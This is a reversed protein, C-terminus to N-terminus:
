AENEGARKLMPLSALAKQNQRTKAIREILAMLKERRKAKNHVGKGAPGDYEVILRVAAFLRIDLDEEDTASWLTEDTLEYYQGGKSASAAKEKIVGRVSKVGAEDYQLGTLELAAVDSATLSSQPKKAV